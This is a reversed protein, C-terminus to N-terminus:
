PSVGVQATTEEGPLKRFIPIEITFSNKAGGKIELELAIEIIRGEDADKSASMADRYLKEYYARIEDSM